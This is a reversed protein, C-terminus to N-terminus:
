VGYPCATEARRPGWRVGLRGGTSLFHGSATEGGPAGESAASGDTSTGKLPAGEGKAMSNAAPVKTRTELLDTATHSKTAPPKAEDSARAKRAKSAADGLGQSLASASLAAAAAFFLSAHLTRM